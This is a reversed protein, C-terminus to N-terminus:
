DRSISGYSRGEADWLASLLLTAAIVPAGFVLPLFLNM